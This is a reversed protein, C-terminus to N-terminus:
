KFDFPNKKLFLNIEIAFAFFGLVLTLVGALQTVITPYEGNVAIWSPLAIFAYQAAMACAPMFMVLFAKWGKLIDKYYYAICAALFAGGVNCPIWWWGMDRGLITFLIYDPTPYYVCGVVDVFVETIVIFISGISLALPMFTKTKKYERISYVLAITIMIIFGIGTLNAASANYPINTPMMPLRFFSDIKM